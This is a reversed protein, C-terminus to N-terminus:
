DPLKLLVGEEKQYAEFDTICERLDLLFELSCGRDACEILYAKMAKIACLDQGRLVFVPEENVLALHVIRKQDKM